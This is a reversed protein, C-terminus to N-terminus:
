ESQRGSGEDEDENEDEDEIGAPSDDRPLSATRLTGMTEGISFRFDFIVCEVYWDYIM